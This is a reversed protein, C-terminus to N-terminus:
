LLKYRLLRDKWEGAYEVGVRPLRVFSSKPVFEGIKLWLGFRKSARLGNFSKDIKLEKTLKGPGDIGEVGRILIAEPVGVPGVVLNLMYYMGYILYVYWHEPPGYMVETRKTRGKSSHCAKDKEGLYAEVEVIKYCGIKGDKYRRCLHQGLLLPAVKDASQLFDIKSNM